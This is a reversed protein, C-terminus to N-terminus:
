DLGCSGPGPARYRRRRSVAIPLCQEISAAEDGRGIVCTHLRCAQLRALATDPAELARIGQSNLVDGVRRDLRITHIAHRKRSRFGPTKFFNSPTCQQVHQTHPLRGFSREGLPAPVSFMAMSLERTGHNEASEQKNLACLKQHQCMWRTPTPWTKAVHPRSLPACSACFGVLLHTRCTRQPRKGSYPASIWRRVRAPHRFIRIGLKEM